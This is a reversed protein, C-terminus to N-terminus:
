DNKFINNLAYLYGDKTTVKFDHNSLLKIIEHHTHTNINDHYEMSIKHVTKKIFEISEETLIDYEAGECDLKLLNIKSINNETCYKQFSIIKIFIKEVEGDREYLSHCGNHTKSIYFPVKENSDKGLAINELQINKINNLTLTKKIKDTLGPIPEFTYIKGTTLKQSAYFSFFGNNAGVDFIIDNEQISFDIPNYYEKYFIESFMSLDAKGIIGQICIRFGNKLIIYRIQLNFIKAFIISPWNKCKLIIALLVRTYNTIM